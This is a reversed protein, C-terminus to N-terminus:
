TVLECQLAVSHRNYINTARDKFIFHTVTQVLLTAPAGGPETYVVIKEGTHPCDAFEAAFGANNEKWRVVALIM